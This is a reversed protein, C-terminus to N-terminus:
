DPSTTRPLFSGTRVTAMSPLKPPPMKPMSDLMVQMMGAYIIYPLYFLPMTAEM